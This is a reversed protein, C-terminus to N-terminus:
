GRLVRGGGWGHRLRVGVGRREEVDRLLIFETVEYLARLLNFETIEVLPRPLSFETM